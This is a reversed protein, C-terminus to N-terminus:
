HGTDFGEVVQTRSAVAVGIQHLYMDFDIRVNGDSLAVCDRRGDLNSEAGNQTEVRDDGDMDLGIMLM